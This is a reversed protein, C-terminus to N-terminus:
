KDLSRMLSDAADILEATDRVVAEIEEKSDLFSSGGLATQVLELTLDLITAAAVKNDFDRDEKLRGM